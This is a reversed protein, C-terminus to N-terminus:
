YQEMAKMLFDHCQGRLEKKVGGMMEKTIRHLRGQGELQHLAM